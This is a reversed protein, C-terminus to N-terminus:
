PTLAPLRPLLDITTYRRRLTGDIRDGPYPDTYEHLRVRPPTTFIDVCCTQDPDGGIEVLWKRWDAQDQRRLQDWTGDCIGVHALVTGELDDRGPTAPPAAPVQCGECPKTVAVVRENVDVMRQILSDGAHVDLRLPTSTLTHVPRKTLLDARMSAVSPVPRRGSM